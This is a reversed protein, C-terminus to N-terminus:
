KCSFQLSLVHPSCTTYAFQKKNKNQCKVSIYFCTRSKNEGHESSAVKMYTSFMYNLSCDKSMNHTLQDLILEESFSKGTWSESM